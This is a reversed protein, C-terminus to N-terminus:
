TFICYITKKFSWMLLLSELLNDKLGPWSFKLSLTSFLINKDYTKLKRNCQYFMRFMDHSNKQSQTVESLIMGELDICKGLFKMFENKKIASYYEM